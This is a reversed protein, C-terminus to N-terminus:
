KLVGIIRDIEDQPLGPVDGALIQLRAQFELEEMRNYAEELSGGQTVAGHREMLMAMSSSHEAVADVLEQTGPTSYKVMPVNGLLLVGEPTLDTRLEESRIALVTCHLPHCHVVANINVNKNYLALHMATEISPKGKGVIEGDMTVKVIDSPDILGKNRGSPTILIHFDDLRMSMNGGASVTLGRDYLRACVESLAKRASGETM